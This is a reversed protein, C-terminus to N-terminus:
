VAHLVGVWVEGQEAHRVGRRVLVWVSGQMGGGWAMRMYPAYSVLAICSAANGYMCSGAPGCRLGGRM